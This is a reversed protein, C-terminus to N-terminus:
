SHKGNGAQVFTIAFAFQKSIDSELYISPFTKTEHPRVARPLGGQHFDKEALFLRVASCDGFLPANGNTIQRLLRGLDAVFGDNFDGDRNRRIHDLDPTSHVLIVVV